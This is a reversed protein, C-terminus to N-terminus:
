RKLKIRFTTGTGPRSEKLLLRGSHYSEVIRKALSLGLGWGRKKTSFGPRFVEARHKPDIGKGTDTVDIFVHRAHGTITYTIRGEGSEIADLANKTLNEIVWEFLERNIPARFEGPTDILLDMTKGSRPLRRGMYAIVGRIVETLDEDHLDPLSGIKSFRAAVKNLREVDHGMEELTERVAEPGPAERLRELWGMLSSLPTGLQHATEKAMGVWINSQESRKIYSFGMYAVFIFIGALAIEMLPFWRLQAVLGSEGYHIYNLILTDGAAIRIPSNQRDMAALEKRFFEAEEEPNMSATDVSLNKWYIPINHPDTQIIPFDIARIVEFTFSLEGEHTNIYDLSRAYLSVIERERKLLQDTLHQSYILVGVAFLSAFFLLVIKINSAARSQFGRNAM